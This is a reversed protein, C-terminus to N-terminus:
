CNSIYKTILPCAQLIRPTHSPVHFSHYLCAHYINIPIIQNRRKQMILKTFQLKKFKEKVKIRKRHKKNKNRM